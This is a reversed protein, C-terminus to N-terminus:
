FDESQLWGYLQHLLYRPQEAHTGRPLLRQRYSIHRHRQAQQQRRATTEQVWSNSHGPTLDLVAIPLQALDTALAQNLQWQPYYIGHVVLADIEAFQGAALLDVLLAASIGEAVVVLPGTHDNTSYAIAQELRDQLNDILDQTVGETPEPYRGTATNAQWNFDQINATPSQLAYTYWGYDVMGQYFTRVASSQYPHTGIEPLLVLRGRDSAQQNEKRLLLYQSDNQELWVVEGPPLYYDLDRENALLPLSSALLLSGIVAHFIPKANM